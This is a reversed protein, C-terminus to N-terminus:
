ARTSLLSQSTLQEMDNITYYKKNKTITQNDLLAKVHNAVTVRSTGVLNALEQHTFPISIKVRNSPLREGYTLGLQVLTQCVRQFSSYFALQLSHQSLLRVKLSMMELVQQTYVPNGMIAEKFAAPHIKVLSTPSATIASAFYTHQQQYTSSEGLIGNKGIIAIAKEDGLSSILYLRVRGKKILYISDAPDHYHFVIENKKYELPTGIQELQSWEFTLEDLWPSIFTYEHSNKHVSQTRQSSM